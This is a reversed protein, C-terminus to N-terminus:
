FIISIITSSFGVPSIEAPAPIPVFPPENANLIESFLQNPLPILIFL